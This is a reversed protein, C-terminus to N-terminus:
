QTLAGEENAEAQDDTSAPVVAGDLIWTDTDPYYIYVAKKGCGQVAIQSAMDRAGESDLVTLTLESQACAFDFTARQRVTTQARSNHKCAVGWVLLLAVVLLRTRMLQSIGGPVPDHWLNKGWALEDREAGSGRRLPESRSRKTSREKM